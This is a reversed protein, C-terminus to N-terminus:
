VHHTRYYYVDNKIKKIRKPEVKEYENDNKHTSDAVNYIVNVFLFFLAALLFIGALAVLQNEGQKLKRIEADKERLKEHLNMIEEFGNDGQIVRPDSSHDEPAVAHHVEKTSNTTTWGNKKNMKEYLEAKIPCMEGKQSEYDRRDSQQEEFAEITKVSRTKVPYEKKKLGLIFVPNDLLELTKIQPLLYYFGPDLVRIKNNNLKLVSLKPNNEFFSSCVTTLLNESLDLFVLNTVTATLEPDLYTIGNGVLKITHLRLLNKFVLINLDGFMKSYSIDIQALRPFAHFAPMMNTKFKKKDVSNVTDNPYRITSFFVVHSITLEKVYRFPAYFFSPFGEDDGYFSVSNIPKEPGWLDWDFTSGDIENWRFTCHDGQCYKDFKTLESDNFAWAVSLTALILCIM